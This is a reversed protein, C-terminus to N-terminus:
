QRTAPNEIMQNALLHSFVAMAGDDMTIAKEGAEATPTNEAIKANVISQELEKVEQLKREKEADKAMQDLMGSMEGSGKYVNIAYQQEAQQDALVQLSNGGGDAREKKEDEIMMNEYQKALMKRTTLDVAVQRQAEEEKEIETQEKLAELRQENEKQAIAQMKVLKDQEEKLAEQATKGNAIVKSFTYIDQISADDDKLNKM